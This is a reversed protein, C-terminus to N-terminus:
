QCQACRGLSVSTRRLECGHGSHRDGSSADTCNVCPEGSGASIRENKMNEKARGIRARPYWDGQLTSWRRLFFSPGITFRIRPVGLSIQHSICIRHQVSRGQAGCDIDCASAGLRKWGVRVRRDADTPVLRSAIQGRRNIMWLLLGPLM